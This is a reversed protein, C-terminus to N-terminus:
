KTATEAELTLTLPSRSVKVAFNKSGVGFSWTEFTGRARRQQRRRGRGRERAENQTVEEKRGEVRGVGAGYIAGSKGVCVIAAAKRGVGTRDLDLSGNWNTSLIDFM